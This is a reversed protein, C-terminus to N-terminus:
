HSELYLIEDEKMLGLQVRIRYELAASDQKQVLDLRRRLERNSDEIKSVHLKTKEMQESLRYLDFLGNRSICLSIINCVFLLSFFIWFWARM